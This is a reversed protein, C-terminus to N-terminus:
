NRLTISAPGRPFRDRNAFWLQSGLKLVSFHFILPSRRTPKNATRAISAPLYRM